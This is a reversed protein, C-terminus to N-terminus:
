KDTIGKTLHVRRPKNEAFHNDIASVLQSREKEERSKILFKFFISLLIGVGISCLEWTEFTPSQKNVLSIIVKGAVAIILGATTGAVIKFWFDSFDRKRLVSFEYKTLEYPKEAIYREPEADVGGEFILPSDFRQGEILKKGSEDSSM